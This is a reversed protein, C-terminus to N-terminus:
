CLQYDFKNPGCVVFNVSRKEGTPALDDMRDGGEMGLGDDKGEDSAIGDWNRTDGDKTNM